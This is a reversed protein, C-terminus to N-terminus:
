ERGDEERIGEGGLPTAGVSLPDKGSPVSDQSRDQSEEMGSPQVGTVEGVEM